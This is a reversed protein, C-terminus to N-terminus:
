IMSVTGAGRQVGSGIKNVRGEDTVARVNNVTLNRVGVKSSARAHVNAKTQGQAAASRVMANTAKTSRVVHVAANPSSTANHGGRPARASTLAARASKAAASKTASPAAPCDIQSRIARRIRLKSTHSTM